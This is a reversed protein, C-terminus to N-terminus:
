DTDFEWVWASNSDALEVAQSWRWDLIEVKHDDGNVKTIIPTILHERWSLTGGTGGVTEYAQCQGDSAGVALCEGTTGAITGTHWIGGTSAEPGTCDASPCDDDDFCGLEPASACTSPARTQWGCGGQTSWNRDPEPADNDPDRDEVSACTGQGVMCDENRTCAQTEDLTCRRDDANNFNKDEGWQAITDTITSEDTTALIGSRFGGDNVDFNWPSLLDLNKTGGATLDSWTKTEFRYDEQFTGLNTTPNELIEDGARFQSQDFQEVGGTPFDTSYFVSNEDVDVTHRSVAIAQSSKGSTAADVLLILEIEPTGAISSAMQISFNASLGSNASIRSITKPSDLITMLATGTGGFGAEGDCTENNTRNPDTCDTSNPRCDEPSDNNTSDDVYVCRLAVDVNNLDAAENSAFAFNFSIAEDHDMYRDPFGFEFNGRANRECGGSVFYTTDQGFQAFVINGFGLKVTCNVSAESIRDGGFDSYVVRLKDGNRVDLAGNGPDRATGDTLVLGDAVFKDADFDPRIMNVAEEDVVMGNSVVQITTRSEVTLTTPELDGTEPVEYVTASATSNCSYEVADLQVWSDQCVSGAVVVAYAQPSLLGAEGEVEITWQGIEIQSPISGDGAPDPSLVIMETPNATDAVTNGCSPLSWASQSITGIQGTLGPCDENLDLVGNRNNDDTFYNGFYIRQQGQDDMPSVLRLNLDNTLTGDLSAPDLWTLVVRLEEDPNCVDFTATEVESASVTDLGGLSRPGTSLVLDQVVLGTTSAPWTDLPLVNDLKVRGYGQENNFRYERTLNDGGPNHGTFTPPKDGIMFQASAILLGKVLAGSVNTAAAPVQSGGPYFGQAFYDRALLAAGAAAPSSFSTGEKQSFIDCEVPDLQDNDSSRCGFESSLGMTGGGEEDGPALLQPSVRNGPAPGASSFAAREEEQASAAGALDDAARSAGISLANKSTAPAGLTGLDSVGDNDADLGANGAAIFAMAEINDFLFTDVDIANADYLNAEVGWSFNYTRAGATYAAGMSGTGVGSYLDGAFINALLPDGCSTAAPTPQADYAILKAGPAVGDLKWSNGNPDTALFGDGYAMSVDTANGLAVAAVLHGHTFGGSIGEDCGASDGRGGPFAATTSYSIVKRHTGSPTGPSMSTDSLDAADLQIGTDLVMLIQPSGVGGGSGDVGVDHYPTAGNNYKGTQVNTTTEESFPLPAIHEFVMEVGEIGAVEALKSRHIEVRVTDPAVARVNGGLSTLTQAIADADEGQFLRVDLEYVESVAKAPDTLPIRGISPHLKVAPPYLISAYVDPSREIVSRGQPTVRAILTSDPLQRVIQGGNSEIADRISEFSGYKVTEPDLQIVLYRPGANARADKAKLEGPFNPEGQALDFIGVPTHFFGARRDKQGVSQDGYFPGSAYSWTYNARSFTPVQGPAKEGKQVKGPGGEQDGAIFTGRDSSLVQSFPLLILSAVAATVVTFRWGTSFRSRM